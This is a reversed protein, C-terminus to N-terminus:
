GAERPAAASPPGAVLADVAREFRDCAFENAGFTLAANAGSALGEQMSAALAFDEDIADWFIKWNRDWHAPDRARQADPVIMWSATACSSVTEPAVNFVNAHDGEWLVFTSPFFFYIVNSHRGLLAWDPETGAAEATAAAEVLTRKPLVIRQHRGFSAQQVVNDHFLHAITARHAYQFHYSELNADLVLKWNSPQVFRREHPSSASADYGLAELEDALPGFHDAWAFAQMAEPVVWVLGCRAAVPLPVLGRADRPAHPFDAEHPRGVLAGRDDYTWSHYPCVFRGRNAGCADPPAVLAGRHRCVNIFARLEGDEGRVALIPVGLLRTSLLDGARGLRAAPAIAHPLRRLAATELGHRAPDAYRAVPSTSPADRQSATGAVAGLAQGWLAAPDQAPRGADSM